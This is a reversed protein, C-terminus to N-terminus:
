VFDEYASLTAALERESNALLLEEGCFVEELLRVTLGQGYFTYTIYRQPPDPHFRCSM